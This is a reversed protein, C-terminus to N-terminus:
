KECALSINLEELNTLARDTMNFVEYNDSDEFVVMAVPKSRLSGQYILYSQPKDALDPVIFFIYENNDM